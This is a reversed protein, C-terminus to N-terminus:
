YDTIIEHKEIKRLFKSNESQELTMHFIGRSQIKKERWHLKKYCFNNPFLTKNNKLM